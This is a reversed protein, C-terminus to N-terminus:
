AYAEEDAAAYAAIIEADLRGRSQEWLRNLARIEDLYFHSRLRTIIERAADSAVRDGEAQQAHQREQRLKIRRARRKRSSADKKRETPSLRALRDAEAYESRRDVILREVVDHDTVDGDTVMAVIDDRVRDPAGALKYLTTPPLVAVTAAKESFANYLAMFNRASRASFNLEREVWETFQGHDLQTKARVLERGIEMATETTQRHHTRIRMARDIMLSALSHGLQQYDFRRHVIEDIQIPQLVNPETLGVQDM